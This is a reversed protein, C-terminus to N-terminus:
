VKVHGMLSILVEDMIELRDATAELSENLLDSYEAISRRMEQATVAFNAFRSSSIKKTSDAMIAAMESIVEDIDGITESEYAARLMERQKADDLIPMFHFSAGVGIGNLLTDLAEVEAAHSEAVFYVGGSPRVCTAFLNREMYKRTFERAAYATMVDVKANVYAKIDEAMETGIPDEILQDHVTVKIKETKREFTVTVLETYGLSHDNADITERVITRWVRQDDHGTARTLYNAKCDPCDDVPINLRQSATCARKFVDATKPFGPMTPPVDVDFFVDMAKANFDQHSVNLDETVTYWCLRGLFLAPDYTTLKDITENFTTM